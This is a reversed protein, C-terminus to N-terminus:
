GQIHPFGQQRRTEFMLIGAAVSVNFSDVHGAAPISLLFDCKEKVLRHLGSGESGLVICVKGNLDLGGTSQGDADAGFIWFGYEKLLDLASAINPVVALAVYESAGSSVKSVTQNEQASRRSPIIVLQVGFQDASRLIAGLNQPDTIGDLVVVLSKEAELDKLHHKLSSKQSASPRELALLVGRHAESGCLRTLEADDVESVPVGKREALQRIQAIRAGQRSILLTGTGAGKQLAEEISHFGYVHEAM